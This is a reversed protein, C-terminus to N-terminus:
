VDDILDNLISSNDLFWRKFSDPWQLPSEDYFYLHLNPDGVRTGFYIAFCIDGFGQMISKSLCYLALLVLTM